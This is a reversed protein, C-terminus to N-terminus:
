VVSATDNYTDIDIATAVDFVIVSDIGMHLQCKISSRQCKARSLQCKASAVQWNGCAAQWTARAVQWM